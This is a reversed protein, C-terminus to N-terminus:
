SLKGMVAISEDHRSHKLIRWNPHGQIDYRTVWCEEFRFKEGYTVKSIALLQGLTVPIIWSLFLRAKTSFLNEM